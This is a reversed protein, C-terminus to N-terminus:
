REARALWGRVPAMLATDLLLHMALRVAAGAAAVPDGAQACLGHTREWAEITADLHGSAYAVEALLPLDGPGLRGDSDAKTLLRYAEDWDGSAAAKRARQLSM